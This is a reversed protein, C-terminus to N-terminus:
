RSLEYYRDIAKCLGDKIEKPNLEGFVDAKIRLFAGCREFNIAMAVEKKQVNVNATEKAYKNVLHSGM